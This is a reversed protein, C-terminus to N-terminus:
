IGSKEPKGDPQLGLRSLFVAYNGAASVLDLDEEFLEDGTDFFFGQCDFVDGLMGEVDAPLRDKDQM